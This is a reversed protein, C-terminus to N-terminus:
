LKLKRMEGWPSPSGEAAEFDSKLNCRILTPYKWRPWLLMATKFLPYAEKVKGMPVAGMINDHVPFLVSGGIKKLAYHVQCMSKLCLDSALGQIPANAAQRKCAAVLRKLVSDRAWGDEGIIYKLIPFRRIRGLESIVQYHRVAAVHCETIYDQIKSFEGLFGDYIKKARKKRSEDKPQLAWRNDPDLQVESMELEAETYSLRRMLTFIGMGYLVGFSITKSAGRDVDLAKRIKLQEPTLSDKPIESGAGKTWYVFEDYNHGYVRSGVTCHIDLGADIARLLKYERAKCAAIVVEIQSLDSGVVEYGEPACYFSKPVLTEYQIKNQDEPKCKSNCEGMTMFSARYTPLDIKGLHKEPEELVGERYLSTVRKLEEPKLEPLQGLKKSITQLPPDQISIRGTRAGHLLMNCHIRGDLDTHEIAQELFTSKLKGLKAYRGYERLEPIIDEYKELLDDVAEKDLSASGKATLKTPKLQLGGKDRKGFLWVKMNNTSTISFDEIGTSTRGRTEIDHRLNFLEMAVRPRYEEILKINPAVGFAEAEVAVLAAPLLTGYFCKHFAVQEESPRAAIYDMQLRTIRWGMDTDMAAYELFEQPPPETGKEFHKKMNSGEEYGGYEPLYDWVLTKLGLEGRGISNTGAEDKEMARNEDKWFEVLMSDWKLNVDGPKIYGLGLKYLLDYKYNHGSIPVRSQFLDLVYPWIDKAKYKVSPHDVFFAASLGPGWGFAMIKFKAGKIFPSLGSAEIDAALWPKTKLEECLEKVEAPTKPFRYNKIMEPKLVPTYGHEIINRAKKFDVEWVSMASMEKDSVMLGPKYVMLAWPHSGDPYRINPVPLIHGRHSKETVKDIGLSAMGEKGFCMILKPQMKQIFDYTFASCSKIAKANAKKDGAGKIIKGDKGITNIAGLKSYLGPKCRTAFTSAWSIVSQTTKGSSWPDPLDFTKRIMIELMRWNPHEGDFDEIPNHYSDNKRPHDLLLVVDVKESHKPIIDGGQGKTGLDHVCKYPCSSCPGGAETNALKELDM